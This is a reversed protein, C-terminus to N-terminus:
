AKKNLKVQMDKCNTDVKSKFDKIFLDDEM